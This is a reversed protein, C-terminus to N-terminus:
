AVRGREEHALGVGTLSPTTHRGETVAEVDFVHVEAPPCGIIEAARAPLEQEAARASEWLFLAGWRETPADSLWVKLRLGEVKSFRAVAEDRLFPRLSAADHQSSALDWWAVVVKM